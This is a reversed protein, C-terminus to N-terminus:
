NWDVATISFELAKLYSLEAEIHRHTEAIPVHVFAVTGVILHHLSGTAACLIDGFSALGASSRFFCLQLQRVYRAGAQFFESEVIFVVQALASQLLPAAFIRPSIFQDGFAAGGSVRYRIPDLLQMSAISLISM